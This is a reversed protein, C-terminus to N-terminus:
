FVAFDTINHFIQGNLYSNEIKIYKVHLKIETILPVNEAYIGGTKPHGCSGESFMRIRQNAPELFM